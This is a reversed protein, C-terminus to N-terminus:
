LICNHRFLLVRRLIYEYAFCQLYRPWIRTTGVYLEMYGLTYGRRYVGMLLAVDTDRRGQLCQRYYSDGDEPWGPM